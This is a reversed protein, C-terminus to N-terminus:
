IEPSFPSDFRRTLAEEWREWDIRKRLCSSDERIEFPGLDEVLWSLCTSIFMFDRSLEELFLWDTRDPPKSRLMVLLWM